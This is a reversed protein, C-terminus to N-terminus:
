AYSNRMLSHLYSTQEESRKEVQAAPPRTHGSSYRNGRSTIFATARNPMVVSAPTGGSQACNSSISQVSSAVLWRFRNVFEPPAKLGDNIPPRRARKGAAFSYPM